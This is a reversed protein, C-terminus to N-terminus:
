NALIQPTWGSMSRMRILPPRWSFPSIMTEPELFAQRGTMAAASSVSLGSVSFFTGRRASMVVM